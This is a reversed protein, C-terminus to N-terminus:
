GYSVVLSLIIRITAPKVVPCYTDLYDVGYRQKYGKAVLRAKLRDVTGDAKRKVKYVWRSDILNIGKRPPVLICTHNRLLAAYEDDMAKKWGPNSVAEEFSKPESLASISATM